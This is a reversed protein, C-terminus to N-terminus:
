HASHKGFPDQLQVDFALYSTKHGHPKFQEMLGLDVSLPSHAFVHRFYLSLRDETFHYASWTNEKTKDTVTLVENGGILFNSHAQNLPISAQAKLRIRIEKPTALPTESSQYFSRWEPRFTYTIAVRKLQHKYQLRSYFRVEKKHAPDEREYPPESSYENQRRFSGAVSFQWHSNVGYSIEENLVLLGQKKFLAWNDPDSERAVGVYTSSVWRTGLHQTLGIAGWSVGKTSGVGPPSIQAHASSILLIFLIAVLGPRLFTLHASVRYYPTPSTNYPTSTKRM